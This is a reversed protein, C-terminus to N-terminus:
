TEVRKSLDANVCDEVARVHQELQAIKITSFLAFVM